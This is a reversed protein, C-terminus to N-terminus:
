HSSRGGGDGGGGGDDGCGDCVVVVDHRGYTLGAGTMGGLSRSPQAESRGGDHGRDVCVPCHRYRLDQVAELYFCMCM